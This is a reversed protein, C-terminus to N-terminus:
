VVSKRDGRNTYTVTAEPSAAYNWDMSINDNYEYIDLYSNIIPVGTYNVYWDGTKPTVVGLNSDQAFGGATAVAPFLVRVWGKTYGLAIPKEILPYLSQISVEPLILPPPPPSLLNLLATEKMDYVAYRVNVLNECQNVVFYGSTTLGRRGSNSQASLTDALYHTPLANILVTDIYNPNSVDFPIAYETKALAAEIEAVSNNVSDALTSEFGVKAAAGTISFTNWNSLATMNLVASNTATRLTMFGTLTNPVDLPMANFGAACGTAPPTHAPMGPISGFTVALTDKKLPASATYAALGFIEFHGFKNTDTASAKVFSAKFPETESAWKGKFPNCVNDSDWDFLPSQLVSDDTSVLIVNNDDDLQIEADWMDTPTLYILFDLVEDSCIASRFVVKAVIAVTTSTNIVQIRSTLGNTHYIQGLLVDGYYNQGVTVRSTPNAAFVSGALLASVMLAVVLSSLAKRRKM